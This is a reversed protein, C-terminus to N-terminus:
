VETINKIANIGLFILEMMGTIMVGWDGSDMSIGGFSFMEIHLIM